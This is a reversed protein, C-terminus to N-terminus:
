SLTGILYLIFGIWAFVAVGKEYSTLDKLKTWNLYVLHGWSYLMALGLITEM